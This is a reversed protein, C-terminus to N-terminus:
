GEEGGRAWRWVREDWWGNRARRGSVCEAAGDAPLWVATWVSAASWIGAVATRQLGTTWTGAATTRWLRPQLVTAPGLLRRHRSTPQRPSPALGLRRAPLPQPGHPPSPLRHHLLSLSNPHPNKLPHSFPNKPSKPPSLYPYITPPTPVWSFILFILFAGIIILALLIWRGYSTWTSTYCNGYADVYQGYGCSYHLPYNAPTTKLLLIHHLPSSQLITNPHSTQSKSM